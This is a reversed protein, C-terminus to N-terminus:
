KTQSWRNGLVTESAAVMLGLVALPLWFEVGTRERELTARFNAATTWRTVLAGSELAKLDNGSLEALESEDRGGQAAFRLFPTTKNGLRAEYGGALDTDDFEFQARGDVTNIRLVSAAVGDPKLVRAEQEPIGAEIPLAFKTGCLGNLQEDQRALVAGLVRHMLPVYAPRLCFDNWRSGATSSFQVVRGRGWAREMVAPQGDAYALVLTPPGADAPLTAPKGPVLTFARFFRATNLSGAAGDNWPDVMPHEYSKTQLQFFTQDQEADGHPEGFAAPLFGRQTHMTENYFTANTKAGPFVILGGGSRLYEEFATLTAGSVEAVNALVVAAFDALKQTELEASSVTKVQIFYKERQEPPVPVLANRLYFVESDRPEAGPDGDVLLVNMEDMARLAITRSNDAPARDAQVRATVTHFGSARLTVSLAVKKSEGPAISELTIQDSPAESDVALNAEVSHTAEMGFNSVEVEFRAPETASAIASTLRLGTVALNQRETDGVIVVSTQVNAKAAGLMAATEGPTKWGTAQGDTILYLRKQAMKQLALVDLARQIAPQWDSGRDSRTAARIAQRTLSLDRAPEPIVAKLGDSVLWVAVSAGPLSDLVQEAAQQAKAFRSVTGDTQAMSASQDLLLIAAVEGNGTEKFGGRKWAPRALALAILVLFACRLFLLIGSTRSRSKQSREVAIKVFRMAAWSTRVSPQRALLHIVLPIVIAALGFLLLPNLFAV